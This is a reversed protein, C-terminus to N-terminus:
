GSDFTNGIVYVKLTSISPSFVALCPVISQSAGAYCTEAGSPPAHNKDRRVVARQHEAVALDVDNSL